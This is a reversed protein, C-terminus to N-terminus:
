CNAIESRSNISPTHSHNGGAAEQQVEQEALVKSHTVTKIHIIKSGQRDLGVASQCESLTLRQM